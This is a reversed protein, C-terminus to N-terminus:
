RRVVTARPLVVTKPVHSSPRHWQTLVFFTTWLLAWALAWAVFAPSQEIM